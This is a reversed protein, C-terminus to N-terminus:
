PSCTYCIPHGYTALYHQVMMRHYASAQSIRNQDVREFCNSFLPSGPTFGYNECQSTEQQGIQEPSPGRACGALLFVVAVMTWRMM